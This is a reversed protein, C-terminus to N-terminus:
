WQSHACEISWLAQEEYLLPVHSTLRIHSKAPSHLERVLSLTDDVAEGKTLPPYPSKPCLLLPGGCPRLDSFQM